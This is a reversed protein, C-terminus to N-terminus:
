CYSSILHGDAKVMLRAQFSQTQLRKNFVLYYSQLFVKKTFDLEQKSVLYWLIGTQVKKGLLSIHIDDM